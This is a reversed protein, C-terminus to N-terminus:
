KGQERLYDSIPKDAIFLNEIVGVGNRVRVVVYTPKAADRRNSQQYAQEAAPARHEEMFFRNFPLEVSAQGRDAWTVHVKLFPKDSSPSKRLMDLRAFGNTDTGLVAYADMDAEIKAGPAIPVKNESFGLAVYRGRFADYPDVPATRFKWRTGHRLTLEHKAILSAPGAIQAVVVLAFLSILWRATKM